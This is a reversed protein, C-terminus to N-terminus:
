IIALSIFLGQATISTLIIPRGLFRPLPREPFTLVAGVQLWGYLVHLDRAKPKRRYKGQHLEAEKFWGFFLFLDGVTVGYDHLHTEAAGGQGFIPRWGSRRKLAARRLDPDFHIPSIQRLAIVAPALSTRLSRESRTTGSTYTAM